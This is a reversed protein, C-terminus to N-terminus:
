AIGFYRDILNKVTMGGGGSEVLRVAEQQGESVFGGLSEIIARYSM